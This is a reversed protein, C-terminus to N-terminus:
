KELCLYGDEENYISWRREALEELKPCLLTDAGDPIDDFVDTQFFENLDDLLKAWSESVSVRIGHPPYIDCDGAMIVFVYTKM